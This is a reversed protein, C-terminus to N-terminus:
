RGQLQAEIALKDIVSGIAEIKGDVFRYFVHEAFTVRRGMVSLGLFEAV